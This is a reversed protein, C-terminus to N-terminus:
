TGPCDKSAELLDGAVGGGHTYFHRLVEGESVLEDAGNESRISFLTLCDWRLREMLRMIPEKETASLLKMHLTKKEDVRDRLFYRFFELNLRYRQERLSRLMFLSMCLLSFNYPYLSVQVLGAAIMIVSQIKTAKIVAKNAKLVGLTEGLAIHIIRGGDLPHAPLLNFLGIALNVESFLRLRSRFMFFLIINSAPGALVVALRKAFGLSEMDKIVACEGLPTIHFSEVKLGLAKGLGVHSMEHITVALLSLGIEKGFGFLAATIIFPIFLPHLRVKM